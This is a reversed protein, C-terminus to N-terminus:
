AGGSRYGQGPHGRLWAGFSVGIQDTPDTRPLHECVGSPSNSAGGSWREFVDQEGHFQLSPLRGERHRVFVPQESM